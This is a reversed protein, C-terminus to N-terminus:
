SPSVPNRSLFPLRTMRAFSRAIAALRSLQARGFCALGAFYVVVGTAILIIPTMTSSFRTAIPERLSAVVISMIATALLPAAGPRLQSVLNTGTVRKVFGIAVPWSLCSGALIAICTGLSGERLMFIILVQILVTRVLSAALVLQPKGLGRLVATNWIHYSQRITAFVLVQLLLVSPTWNEGLLPPVLYPAMLAIGACAPFVVSTTLSVGEAHARRVRNLDTQIIAFATLATTQIPSNMITVTNEVVRRAFVFYGLETPGTVRGLIVRPIQQDIFVLIGELGRSGSFRWIQRFHKGSWRLRPRWTVKHWLITTEVLAGALRQVVLSWVGGGSLVWAVAAFGGILESAIAAQATDSFRFGRALLARPVLGCSEIYLTISAVTILVPLKEQMFFRGIAGSLGAMVAILGLAIVQLTWFLTDSHEPDLRQFQILPESLGSSMTRKALALSIEVMAMLGFVEPGLFSSLLLFSLFGILSSVAAGTAAWVGGQVSQERLSSTEVLNQM